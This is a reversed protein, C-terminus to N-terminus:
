NEDLLGAYSEPRRDALYPFETRSKKLADFDLDALILCDEGGARALDSWPSCIVSKGVYDLDGEQDCRNAYALFM